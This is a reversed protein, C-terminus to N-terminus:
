CHGVFVIAGLDMDVALPPMLLDALEVTAASPCGLAFRFRTLFRLRPLAAFCSLLLSSSSLLLSSLSSSLSADFDAFADAFTLLPNAIFYRAYQFDQM